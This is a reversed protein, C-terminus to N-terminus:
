NYHQKSACHSRRSRLGRSETLCKYLVLMKIELTHITRSPQKKATGNSNQDIFSGRSNQPQCQQWLFRVALGQSKESTWEGEESGWIVLVEERINARRQNTRAALKQDRALLTTKCFLLGVNTLDAPSAILPACFAELCLITYIHTLTKGKHSM